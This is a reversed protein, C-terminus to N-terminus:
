AFVKKKELLNAHKTAVYKQTLSYTLVHTSRPFHRSIDPTPTRRWYNGRVWIAKFLSGAENCSKHVFMLHLYLQRWENWTLRYLLICKYNLFTVKALDNSLRVNQNFRNSISRTSVTITGDSSRISLLIHRKIIKVFVSGKRERRVNMLLNYIFPQHIFSPAPKDDFNCENHNEVLYHICIGM